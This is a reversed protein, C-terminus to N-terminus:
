EEMPLQRRGHRVNRIIVEDDTLTYFVLYPFPAVPFVRVDDSQDLPRALHPFEALRAIM